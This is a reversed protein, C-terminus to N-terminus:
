RLALWLVCGLAFAALPLLGYHSRRDLQRAHQQLRRCESGFDTLDAKLMGTIRRHEFGGAHFPNTPEIRSQFLEPNAHRAADVLARLTKILRASAPAIVMASWAMASLGSVVLMVGAGSM